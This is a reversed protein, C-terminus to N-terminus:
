PGKAQPTARITWSTYCWFILLSLYAVQHLYQFHWGRQWGLMGLSNNVVTFILLYPLYSLLIAKHFRDVPLRYWLVLAAIAAFLWVTGNLVRPQLDGVFDTYDGPSVPAVLVAVLTALLILLSVRRLASLAGPFTRFTRYALELAMAFRLLGTVVEQAQWADRRFFRERWVIMLIATTLVTALYLAFSAFRRYHKRVLVGALTGAVTLTGVTGLLFQLSSM